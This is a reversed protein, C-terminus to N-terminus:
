RAKADGGAQPRPMPLPNNGLTALYRILAARDEPRRLGAYTMKTGPVTRSPHPASRQDPVASRQSSAM